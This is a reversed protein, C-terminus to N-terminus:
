RREVIDSFDRETREAQRVYFWGLAVLVPYVLFGLAVWPLPVGAVEANRAAPVLAFLLPLMGLVAALVGLVLLALQLQSRLLSQMVADGVGTQDDIEQTLAKRRERAATTRPSTVRVRRPTAM